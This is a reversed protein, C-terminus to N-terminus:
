FRRYNGYGGVCFMQGRYNPMYMYKKVNSKIRYESQYIKKKEPISYCLEFTDQYWESILEITPRMAKEVAEMLEKAFFGVKGIAEYIETIQQSSYGMNKCAGYFSDNEIKEVRFGEWGVDQAYARYWVYKEGM